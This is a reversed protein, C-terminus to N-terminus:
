ACPPIMLAPLGAWLIAVVAFGALVAAGFRWFERVSPAGDSIGPGRGLLALALIAGCSAVAVLTAAVVIVPVLGLGAVAIRDLGRACAIGNVAYVSLFHAAWVLLGGFLFALRAVFSSRLM